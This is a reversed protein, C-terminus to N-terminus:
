QEWQNWKKEKEMDEKFEYLLLKFDKQTINKGFKYNFSNRQGYITEPKTKIIEIATKLFTKETDTLVDKNFFPNEKLSEEISKLKFKYEERMRELYNKSLYNSCIYNRVKDTINKGEVVRDLMDIINDPLRIHILSPM